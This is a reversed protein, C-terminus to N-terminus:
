NEYAPHGDGEIDAGSGSSSSLDRAKFFDCNITVEAGSRASDASKHSKEELMIELPSDQDCTEEIRNEARKTMMATLVIIEQFEQDIVKDVMSVSVSFKNHRQCVWCENTDFWVNNEEINPHGTVRSFILEKEHNRM